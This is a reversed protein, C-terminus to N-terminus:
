ETLESWILRENLANVEDIITSNEKAYHTLNEFSGVETTYQTQTLYTFEVANVTKELETIKTTNTTVDETLAQLSGETISLNSEVKKIRSVANNIATTNNTINATAKTLSDEVTTLRTNYGELKDTLGTVQSETVAELGLKGTADVTFNAEDVSKIFNPEAGEKIAALKKGEADTMLRSGDVKDVKGKIATAIAENMQETTSYADLNVSVDDLRVVETGVKAYIDYFGTDANMVLYLVNDEADAVTPVNDVKKFTAHGADAIKKETEEKTYADTIGYGALTTAKDAKNKTLEAINQKNSEVQSALGEVTTTDPKVWAVEGNQGVTLQAGVEATGFGKISIAGDVIEISKNDGLPTSGVEKLTKNPQILYLTANQEAVVVVTEGYFYTGKASGVEVASAAATQATALSDFYYRADLPFATQPAFAVAFNLKGFEAM